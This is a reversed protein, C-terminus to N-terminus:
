FLYLSVSEILELTEAFEPITQLSSLLTNAEVALYKPPSNQQVSTGHTEDMSYFESTQEGLSNLTNSVCDEM